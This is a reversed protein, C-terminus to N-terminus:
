PFQQPILLSLGLLTPTLLNIAVNQALAPKLTTVNNNFRFATRSARVALPATALAILSWLPLIQLLVGALLILYASVNFLAYVWQTPGLGYVILFHRRGAARDAELDPLQNLLLLNNVLFFPILSAYLAFSSHHGTLVLHTGVIMLPGFGLGPAILCMFPMRNLWQTYTVIILAGLVGLPLLAVGRLSIFYLGLTLTIILALMGGALVANLAQPHAPLAGSGGSFPTRQTQQDLGSKFDHYENLMNVSIHACLAGLLVLLALTWDVPGALSASGVGVSVCAPTLLLFPPRMTHVVATLRETM